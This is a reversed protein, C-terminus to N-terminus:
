PTYIVKTEGTLVDYVITTTPTPKAIPIFITSNSM